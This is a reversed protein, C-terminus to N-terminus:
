RGATLEKRHTAQQRLSRTRDGQGSGSGRNRTAELEAYLDADWKVKEGWRQGFSVEAEVPVPAIIKSDNMVSQLTHVVDVVHENPVDLIVEDHVVLMMWPGLGAQDLELLKMKFLTAAAGQITYNVLAYEKGPKSLQRRGSLPCIAYGVGEAAKHQMALQYTSDQYERVGPFTDDFLAMNSRVTEIDIGATWAMKALGAGYIKAYGFNKIRDRLPHNKDITPDSYVQQALNVFFDDPSHFAAIMNADNSLWALIRMEIQSFDCFILTHEPRACVCNRIVTAPTFDGAKKATPLNQFNPDSMSMRSTRAGLANISPHLLDNADVETIYHKLYTSALKELKRRILVQRALPHDIGELVEADLSVAGGRTAKTFEIGDDHLRAIVQANRGPNVNYNKICWWKIKECHSTFKEYADLSYATDIHVGYREMDYTVWQVANEVEFATEAPTGHIRPWTYDDLQYTIVPDLAGYTWYPAYDIPVTSWTWGTAAFDEQSNKARPDVYRVANNKLATSFTPDLIHCQPRTDRIRHRPLDIGAGHMMGWDFPANHALLTGTYNKVIDAMIGSWRDWQFAWGHVGDGVQGLRIRDKEQSLGTTETDFAIKEGHRAQGLWTTFSSVDDLSEILHLEVNDLSL